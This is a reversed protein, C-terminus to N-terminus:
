HRVETATAGAPLDVRPLEILTLAMLAATPTSSDQKGRDLTTRVRDNAQSDVEVSRFVTGLQNSIRDHQKM